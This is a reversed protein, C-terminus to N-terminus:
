KSSTHRPSAHSVHLKMVLGHFHAPTELHQNWTPFIPIEHRVYVGIESTLFASEVPDLPRRGDVITLIPLRSGMIAVMAELKKGM